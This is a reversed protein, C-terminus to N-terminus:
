HRKQKKKITAVLHKISLIPHCLLMRFRISMMVEVIEKRREKTYCHINCNACFPKDDKFPCKELRKYCYNLLSACNECLSQKTKHTKKCYMEIMLKITKSENNRKM